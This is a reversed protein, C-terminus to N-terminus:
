AAKEAARQAQMGVTTLAYQQGDVYWLKLWNGRVAKRFVSRWDRYKKADPQSYRHRFEKWALLLFEHPIGVDEAYVFVPDGDPIPREGKAKTAELWTKLNIAGAKAGPPPKPSDEKETPSSSSSSTSGDGIPPKPSDKPAADNGDGFRSSEGRITRVYEDRVFRASFWIPGQQARILEVAPGAKRGSRPVYVLPECAGVDCGKIVRKEVLERVHVASAGAASCLEKLPWRVIGYEDSDHLVCLIDMWVGRAAPSCRRLNADKRWDAPYFQFSPRKM